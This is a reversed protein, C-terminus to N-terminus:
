ESPSTGLVSRIREVIMGGLTLAVFNVGLLSWIAKKAWSKQEDLLSRERTDFTTPPFYRRCVLVYSGLLTLVITWFLFTNTVEAFSRDVIMDTAVLAWFFMGFGWFGFLGDVNDKSVQFMRASEVNPDLVRVIREELGIAQERARPCQMIIQLSPRAKQSFRLRVTALLAGGSDSGNVRMTVELAIESVSDHFLSGVIADASHFKENGRDDSVVLAVSRKVDSGGRAVDDLTSVTTRELDGLLSKTVKCPRLIRDISFQPNPEM